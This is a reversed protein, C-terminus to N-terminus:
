PTEVRASYVLALTFLTAAGLAAVSRLTNWRTWDSVYRSWWEAASAAAPSFQALTDNLPINRAGTVVITGLLYSASALVRLKSGPESWAFSSAVALIASAAATGVFVALFWRNLVVVNISQMAAIGQAPPLRALAPMVFSSFAFFVGAILGCGLASALSSYFLAVAIM